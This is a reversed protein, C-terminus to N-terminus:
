LRIKYAAVAQEATARDKEQPKRGSAFAKDIGANDLNAFCALFDNQDKLYKDLYTEAGSAWKGHWDSALENGDSLAVRITAYRTALSELWAIMHEDQEPVQAALKVTLRRLSILDHQIEIRSAQPSDFTRMAIEGLLELTAARRAQLEERATQQAQEEARKQEVRTAAEVAVKIQREVAELTTKRGHKSVFIAILVPILVALFPWVFLSLFAELWSGELDARLLAIQCAITQPSCDM